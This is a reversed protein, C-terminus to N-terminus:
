DGARMEYLWVGHKLNPGALISPVFRLCQAPNFVDRREHMGGGIVAYIGIIDHMPAVVFRSEIVEWDITVSLSFIKPFARKPPAGNVRHIIDDRPMVRSRLCVEPCLIILNDVLRFVQLEEPFLTGGLWLQIQPVFGLFTVEDDAKIHLRITGLGRRTIM